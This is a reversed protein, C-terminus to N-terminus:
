SKLGRIFDAYPMEKKGEPTVSIINLNGDVFDAQKVSVRIKKGEHETFFYTGPWGTYACIKLYNQYANDTLNILGDAKTIKQCYTADTHKQTREKIKGSVWDPIISALLKGGEHALIDELIPSTVPWTANPIEKQAVIPGHDMEKDLRMITVGTNREDNLIAAEIPSPGRFKPLLSPHVNLVKHKPLELINKPLIKGYAAVIFLDWNETFLSATLINNKEPEKLSAPQIFDIKNEEAWKKVPPATLVLGRGQPKDPATVILEPVIGAITLEELITVAFTPTGFFAIRNKHTKIM